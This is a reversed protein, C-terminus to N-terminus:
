LLPIEVVSNFIDQSLKDHNNNYEEQLKKIAGAHQERLLNLKTDVDANLKAKLEDIKSNTEALLEDDFQKTKDAYNASLQKKKQNASDMVNASSEEIKSLKTIIEQM